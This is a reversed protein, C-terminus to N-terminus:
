CGVCPALLWGREAGFARIEALTQAPAVFLVQLEEAFEEQLDLATPM